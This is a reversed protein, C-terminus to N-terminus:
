FAPRYHIALSCLEVGVVWFGLGWECVWVVGGRLHGVICVTLGLWRHDGVM